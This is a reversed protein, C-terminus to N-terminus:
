RARRERRIRLVVAFAISALTWWHLHQVLVSELDALWQTKIWDKAADTSPETASTVLGVAYDRAVAAFGVACKVGAAVCGIAWWGFALSGLAFVGLAVGWFVSLSLIGMSIAGMAIPAVAVGGFAIFPSIAVDGIAIWACVTRTRYEVSSNGGWAMAFLPLGLLRSESEFFKPLRLPKGKAALVRAHDEDTTRTEIRIGAVARDMRECIMIIGGVLAATWAGVGAVLWGASANYLTGAQSLVAVLGGVM